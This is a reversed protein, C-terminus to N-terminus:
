WLLWRGDDKRTRDRICAPGCHLVALLAPLSDSKLYKTSFLGWGLACSNPNSVGINEGFFYKM